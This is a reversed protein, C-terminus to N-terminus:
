RWFLPKGRITTWDSRTGFWGANQATAVVFRTRSGWRRFEPRVARMESEIANRADNESIFVSYYDKQLLEEARYGTLQEAFPSFYRIACGGHPNRDHLASGCSRGSPCGRKPSAERVEYTETIRALRESRQIRSTYEAQYADEIIALDLELLLGLSRGVALQRAVDSALCLELADVLSRRIRSLAANTYVQDLGIEVHRLGVDCRRKVYATDYNGPFLEHLWASLSQKLRAIQESGGTIVNRTAAHRAVEAYFQDIIGPLHPEILGAVGAIREADDGTFGVYDQLERYREYLGPNM